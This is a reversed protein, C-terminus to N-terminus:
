RSFERDFLLLDQSSPFLFSNRSGGFEAAVTGRVMTWPPQVALPFFYFTSFSPFPLYRYHSQDKSLSVAGSEPRGRGEGTTFVSALLSFASYYASDM